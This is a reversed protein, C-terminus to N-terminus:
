ENIVIQPSVPSCVELISFIAQLTGFVTKAPPCTEAARLAVELLQRTTRSFQTLIRSGGSGSPVPPADNLNRSSSTANIVDQSHILAGQAELPNWVTSVVPTPMHVHSQPVDGIAEHRLSFAPSPTRPPSPAASVTSPSPSAPLNYWSIPSLSFPVSSSAQGHSGHIHQSLELDISSM